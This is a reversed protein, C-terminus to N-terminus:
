SKESNDFPGVWYQRCDDTRNMFGYDILYRRITTYDSYIPELINNIEKETYIRGQEFEKIILNLIFLKKKEKPPFKLLVLPSTSKFCSKIINKAESETIIYREDTINVNNNMTILKEEENKNLQEELLESMIIVLKAQKAKERFSHRQFRVTAASTGTIRATDKDPVHEYFAKLFGKQTDTIGSYKKDLSLLAHFVSIHKETIHLRMSKVADCMTYNNKYIVGEEFESGCFICRYMHNDKIYGKKIDNLDYELYNNIM